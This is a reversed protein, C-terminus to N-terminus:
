CSQRRANMYNTARLYRMNSWCTRILKRTAGLSTGADKFSCGMVALFKDFDIHADGGTNSSKLIGCINKTGVLAHMALASGAVVQQLDAEAIKGDGNRDLFNFVQWLVDRTLYMGDDLNAAIFESYSITGSGDFKASELVNKSGADAQSNRLEAVLEEKTVEGKGNADLQQFTNHLDRVSEHGLRSAVLHFAIKKLPPEAQFQNVKQLVATLNVRIVGPESARTWSRLERLAQQASPRRRPAKTIMCSMLNKARRSVRPERPCELRAAMVQQLTLDVGEGRFPVRGYFLTYMIIGCSWLDAREDYDALLVEPAVYDPTGAPRTLACGPSIASALGFDAVKILTDEIPRGAEALLINEAKLDLHCIGKEHMHAIASLIQKMVSATQEETFCRRSGQEKFQRLTAGALNGGSCLEMVMFYNQRDQYTEYLRLINPHDLGSMADVEDWFEEPKITPGGPPDKPICKVANKSGSKKHVAASVSGFTGNGLSEKDLTYVKNIDTGRTCVVYNAPSIDSLTRRRRQLRPQGPCPFCCRWGM